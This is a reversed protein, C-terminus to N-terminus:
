HHQQMPTPIKKITKVTTKMNRNNKTSTTIQLQYPLQIYTKRTITRM